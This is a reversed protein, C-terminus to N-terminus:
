PPPLNRLIHWRAMKGHCLMLAALMGAKGDAPIGTVGWNLLQPNMEAMIGNAEFRGKRDAMPEPASCAPACGGTLVAVGM